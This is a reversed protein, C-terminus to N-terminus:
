EEFPFWQDMLWYQMMFAYDKFNIYRQGWPEDYIFEALSNPPWWRDTGPAVGTLYVIEGQSLVRNYFRIDDFRADIFRGMTGESNWAGMAAPGLAVLNSDAPSNTDGVLEGNIYARHKGVANPDALIGNSDYTWAIHIWEGFDVGVLDASAGGYGNGSFEIGDLTDEEGIFAIHIDGTTDDDGAQLQHIDLSTPMFKDVKVWFTISAQTVNFDCLDPIDIYNHGNLNISNGDSEKNVDATWVPSPDADGAANIAITAHNGRGSSDNANKDLKYWALLNPDDDEVKISLSNSDRLLWDGFMASLDNGDVICDPGGEFVSDAGSTIDFAYFPVCRRVYLRLDDYYVYGETGDKVGLAISRIKDPNVNNGDSYCCGANFDELAINWQIWTEATLDGVDGGSDEVYYITHSDDVDGDNDDDDGLTVFLDTAFCPDDEDDVAVGWFYVVL